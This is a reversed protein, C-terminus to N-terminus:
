PWRYGGLGEVQKRWGKDELLVSLFAKVSNEEIFDKIILVEYLEEFLPIFDLDFSLAVAKIAMGCDAEGSAVAVAVNVHTSEERDYGKIDDGSLGDKELLYDFLIRTGSGRQRNVFVAGKQAIDKISKIDLPNGKKVLLGQQRYFVPIRLIDKDSLFRNIYPTNFQNSEPDFMHTGCVYATNRKLMIVGGLSGTTVKVVEVGHLRKLRSFLLDLAPDNSGAFVLRNSFDGDFFKKVPLDIFKVSDGAEKELQGEELLIFGDAKTMSSLVGAGRKLPYAYVTEGVKAINVRIFSSIGMPSSLPFAAKVYRNEFTKWYGKFLYNIFPYLFLWSIISFSAPYGPMCFVPVVKKSDTVIRGFMFPKGPRIRVWKFLIEGLSNIVEYTYDRKGYATGGCTIIIDAKSELLRKIADKIVIPDDKVLPHKLFECGWSKAYAEAMFSNSERVKGPIDVDDEEVLEDGAPLFAILPKKFVFVEKVCASVFLSYLQQTITDRPEAIIEGKILEEGVYRLNQGPKTSANCLVSGDDLWIVDEVMLVSDYCSEVVDGTNVFKYQGSSLKIPSSLTAGEITKSCVAIGDVASATYSPVNKNSFVPQALVRGLSDSVSVKETDLTIKKAEAHLISLAESLSIYELVM